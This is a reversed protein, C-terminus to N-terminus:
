MKVAFSRENLSPQRASAAASPHRCRRAPGPRARQAGCGYATELHLQLHFRCGVNGHNSPHLAANQLSSKPTGAGAASTNISTCLGRRLRRARRCRHAAEAALGETSDIAKLCCPSPHRTSCPSHETGACGPEACTHSESSVVALSHGPARAPDGSAGCSSLAGSQSAAVCRCLLVISSAAASRQRESEGRRCARRQM